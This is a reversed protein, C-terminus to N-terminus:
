LTVIKNVSLFLVMFGAGSALASLRDTWIMWPPLELLSVFPGSQTRSQAVAASLAILVLDKALLSLCLWVVTEQMWLFILLGVELVFLVLELITLRGFTRVFVAEDETPTIGAGLVVQEARELLEPDARKLCLYLPNGWVAVRLSYVVVGWLCCSLLFM